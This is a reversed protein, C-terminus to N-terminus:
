LVCRHFKTLETLVSRFHGDYAQTSKWQATGHATHVLLDSDARHTGRDRSRSSRKQPMSPYTRAIPTLSDSISLMRSAM